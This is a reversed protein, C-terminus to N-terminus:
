DVFCRDVTREVERQDVLRRTLTYAWACRTVSRRPSHNTDSPVRQRRVDRSDRPLNTRPSEHHAHHRVPPDLPGRDSGGPQQRQDRVRNGVLVRLMRTTSFPCGPQTAASVWQRHVPHDGRGSCQQSIRPWPPISGHVNSTAPLTALRAALTGTASGVRIPRTIAAHGRECQRAEYSNSVTRASFRTWPEPWCLQDGQPGATTIM